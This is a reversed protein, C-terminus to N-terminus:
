DWSILANCEWLGNSQAPMASGWKGSGGTGEGLMWYGVRWWTALNLGRCVGAGVADGEQSPSQRKEREGAQQRAEPEPGAM